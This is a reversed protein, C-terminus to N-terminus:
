GYLPYTFGITNSAARYQHLLTDQSIHFENSSSVLVKNGVCFEGILKGGGKKETFPITLTESRTDVHKHKM